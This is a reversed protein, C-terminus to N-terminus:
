LMGGHDGGAAVDFDTDLLDGVQAADLRCRSETARDANGALRSAVQHGSSGGVIKSANSNVRKLLQAMAQLYRGALKKDIM